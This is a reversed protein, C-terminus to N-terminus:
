RTASLRCTFTRRVAPSSRNKLVNRESSIL